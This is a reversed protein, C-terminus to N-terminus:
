TRDGDAELEKLFAPVASMLQHRMLCAISHGDRGSPSFCYLDNEDKWWVGVVVGDLKVTGDRGLRADGQQRPIRSM